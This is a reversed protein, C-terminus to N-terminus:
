YKRHYTHQRLVVLNLLITSGVLEELVEEERQEEGKGGLSRARGRAAGRGRRGYSLV